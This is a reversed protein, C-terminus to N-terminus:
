LSRVLDNLSAAVEVLKRSDILDPTDAMTHTVTEMLQPMLEATFAIAPAQNMVFIMHDGSYWADGPCLGPYGSFVGIAKAQVAESCEYFSYSSRGEVYGVDDINIALTIAPLQEGYRRLYDM